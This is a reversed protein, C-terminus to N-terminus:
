FTSWAIETRYAEILCRYNLIAKFTAIVIEVILIIDVVLLRM